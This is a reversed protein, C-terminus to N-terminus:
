VPALVREALGSEFAYRIAETRNAVGLKRYVNTLHFKVTQQAIDLEAAIEKNVLGRALSELVALESRTLLRRADDLREDPPALAPARSIVTEELAHRLIATLDRPDVEKRVYASAGLRLAREAVRPDDAGSLVVVKVHPHTERLSRLCELGDSGPMRVDLLVLDPASAAVARLAEAGSAAKAVVEFDGDADLLAEVTDLLLPHDDALVVRARAM